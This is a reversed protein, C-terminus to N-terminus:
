STFTSKERKLGFEDVCNIRVLGSKEESFEEVFKWNTGLQNQNMMEILRENEFQYSCTIDRQLDSFITFSLNAPTAKIEDVVYPTIKKLLNEVLETQRPQAFTNACSLSEPITECELTVSSTNKTILSLQPIICLEDSCRISVDNSASCISPIDFTFSVDATIPKQFTTKFITGNSVNFETQPIFVPENVVNLPTTQNTQNTDVVLADLLDMEVSFILSPNMREECQSYITLSSKNLLLNSLDAKCVYGQEAVDYVTKPCDFTYSLDAFQKQTIDYKCDSLTQTVLEIHSNIYEGGDAILESIIPEDCSNKLGFEIFSQSVLQGGDENICSFFIVYEKQAAKELLFTILNDLGLDATVKVFQSLANALPIQFRDIFPYKRQLKEVQFSFDIIESVLDRYSEAGFYAKLSGFVPLDNIFRIVFTHNTTYNGNTLDSSSLEGYSIGPVYSPKCLAPKNTKFSVRLPTQVAQQESFTYGSFRDLSKESIVSGASTMEIIEFNGSVPVESLCQHTGNVLIYQCNMGLSKCAYESCPRNVGCIECTDQTPYFPQCLQSVTQEFSLDNSPDLFDSERVALFENLHNITEAFQKSPTVQSEPLSFQSIPNHLSTYSLVGTDTLVDKLKDGDITEQSFDGYYNFTKGCDSILSCLFGRERATFSTIDAQSIIKTYSAQCYNQKSDWFEFGLPSEPVCIGDGIYACDYKSCCSEDTCEFCSQATNPRCLSVDNQEVCVEERFDRCSEILVDGNVCLNRYFRGGVGPHHECWSTGSEIGSCSEFSASKVTSIVEDCQANDQFFGGNAFCTSKSVGNTCVNDVDCRTNEVFQNFTLSQSNSRAFATSIGKVGVYLAIEDDLYNLKFEYLTHPYPKFKQVLILPEDYLVNKSSHMFVQQDFWGSTVEANIAERIGLIMKGYPVDVTVRHKSIDFSTQSGTIKLPFDLVVSISDPSLSTKTKIAGRTVKMGQNEYATTDLCRSLATPLNEDLYNSVQSLTILQTGTNQEFLFAFSKNLHVTSEYENLVSQANYLLNLVENNVCTEIFQKPSLLNLGDNNVAINNANNKSAIDQIYYLVFISMLFVVGLIIFISIQGRKAFARKMSYKEDIKNIFTTRSSM